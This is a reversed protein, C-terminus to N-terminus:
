RSLSQEIMERLQAFTRLSAAVDSRIRVRFEAELALMLEIHGLSDWHPTRGLGSDPGSSGPRLAFTREIVRSLRASVDDAANV